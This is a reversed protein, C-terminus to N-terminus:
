AVRKSEQWRTGLNQADSPACFVLVVPGQVDSRSHEVMRFGAEIIKRLDEAIEGGYLRVVFVGDEKLHRSYRELTAKIRGRPIYYISERFLIVDYREEPAYASIDAQVYRNKQGRQCSQSKQRAKEVAVDSIDVGTYHAYSEPNLECGTNGSGCGLDLIDGGHGYKEVFGYVADGPTSEISAWRGNAFERNWLRRKMRSSGWRQRAGRLADKL